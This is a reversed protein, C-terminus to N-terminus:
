TDVANYNAEQGEGEIFSIRRSNWSTDKFVFDVLHVVRFPLLTAPALLKDALSGGTWTCFFSWDRQLKQVRLM